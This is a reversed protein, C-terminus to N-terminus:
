KGVRLMLLPGESDRYGKRRRRKRKRKKKRKLKHKALKIIEELLKDSSRKKGKRKKRKKQKKRKMAKGYFYKCLSLQTKGKVRDSMCRKKSPKIKKALAGLVKLRKMSGKIPKIISKTSSLERSQSDTLTVPSNPTEKFVCECKMTNLPAAGVNLRGKIEKTMKKRVLSLNRGNRLRSMMKVMNRNSLLDQTGAQSNYLDGKKYEKKFGELNESENNGFDAELHRGKGLHFSSKSSEFIHSIEHYELRVESRHQKVLKASLKLGPM